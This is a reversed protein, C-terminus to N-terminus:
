RQVRYLIASMLTCVRIRGRKTRGKIRRHEEKCTHERVKIYPRLSQTSAARTNIHQYTGDEVAKITAQM